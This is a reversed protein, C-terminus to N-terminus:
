PRDGTQHPTIAAILIPMVRLFKRIPGDYSARGQIFMMPLRVRREFTGVLADAEIEIETETPGRDELEIVPRAGEMRLTGGRDPEERIVVRVSTEAAGLRAAAEDDQMAIEFARCLTAIAQEVPEAM